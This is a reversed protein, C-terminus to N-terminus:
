KSEESYGRLCMNAIETRNPLSTGDGLDAQAEVQLWTPNEREPSRRQHTWRLLGVSLLIRVCIREYM